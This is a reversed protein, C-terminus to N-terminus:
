WFTYYVTMIFRDNTAVKGDGYTQKVRAFEGAVNMPGTVNVFTVVNWFVYKTVVKEPALDYHAVDASEAHGYSAALWVRGSPPLYYQGGVMYTKWQITHLVGALDYTVLGNDIDQPWTPAPTVAGPNPLAPFGAGGLTGPTYL